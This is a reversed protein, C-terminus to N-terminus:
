QEENSRPFAGDSRMRSVWILDSAVFVRSAERVPKCVSNPKTSIVLHVPRIGPFLLFAQLTRAM